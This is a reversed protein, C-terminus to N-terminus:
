LILLEDREFHTVFSTEQDVSRVIYAKHPYSAYLKQDIAYMLRSHCVLSQMLVNMSFSKHPLSKAQCGEIHRLRTAPMPSEGKYVNYRIDSFTNRGEGIMSVKEEDTRRGPSHQLISDGTSRIHGRTPSVVGSISPRSHFHRRALCRHCLEFCHRVGVQEDHKGVSCQRQVLQVRKLLPWWPQEVLLVDVGKSQIHAPVDQPVPESNDRRLLADLEEVPGVVLVSGDHLGAPSVRLLQVQGVDRAGHCVHAAAQEQAVRALVADHLVLRAHRYIERDRQVLVGPRQDLVQGRLVVRRLVPQQGHRHVVQADDDRGVAVGRGHRRGAEVRRGHAKREAVRIQNSHGLAAPAHLHVGGAAGVPADARAALVLDHLDDVHRGVGDTRRLSAIPDAICWASECWCSAACGCYSSM